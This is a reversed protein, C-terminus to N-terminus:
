DRGIVVGRHELRKYTAGPGDYINGSATITYVDSRQQADAVSKGSSITGASFLSEDEAIDYGSKDKLYGIVECYCIKGSKNTYKVSISDTSCSAELRSYTGDDQGTSMPMVGIPMAAFATMGLFIASIFTSTLFIKMFRKVLRM